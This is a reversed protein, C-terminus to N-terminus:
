SVTARRLQLREGRHVRGRRAPPVLEDCFLHSPTRRHHLDWTPPVAGATARGANVPATGRHRRAAVQWQAARDRQADRDRRLLRAARFSDSKTHTRRDAGAPAGCHLRDQRRAGPTRLMHARIICCWILKVQAAPPTGSPDAGFREVVSVVGNPLPVVGKSPATSAEGQCPPEQPSARTPGACGLLLSLYLASALM